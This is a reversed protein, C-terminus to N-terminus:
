GYVKAWCELISPGSILVELLRSFLVRESVRLCMNMNFVYECCVFAVEILFLDSHTYIEM